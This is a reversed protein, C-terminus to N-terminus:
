FSFILNFKFVYVDDDGIVVYEDAVLKALDIIRGSEWWYKNVIFYGEKVGALKMANEMTEKTPKKNVMELYYQYLANGTPIPYYFLKGKSTDYYKKFGFEQLAAASVQQNALVIFDNKSNQEIYDVAMIDYKSTNFGNSSAFNDHRPYSLYLSACLCISLALILFYRMKFKKLKIKQWFNGIFFLFFPILFLCAIQLVRNTYDDREYNILFGFNIFIKLILYNFFFIFFLILYPLYKKIKKEQYIKKLSFIFIGALIIPLNFYFFYVTNLIIKFQGSNGFSLLKLNQLYIIVGDLIKPNITIATQPSLISNALWLLPFATLGLCAIALFLKGYITNQIKYKTNQIKRWLFLLALFLFAPVGSIPHIFFIALANLILFTNLKKEPNKYKNNERMQAPTREQSVGASCAVGGCYRRWDASSQLAPILDAGNFDGSPSGLAPVSKDEQLYNLSFIILIILFLNALNQPTTLILFSFPMIFLSLIVLWNNDSQFKKNLYYYLVAPLFVAAFFPVLIKELININAGILKALYFILSYEGIYYFPKPAITGTKLIVDLAARHIFPDFGYGLKYIFYAVGFFLFLYISTLILKYNITKLKKKNLLIAILSLTNIFFIAFFYKPAVEWPTRISLLTSNSILIYILTATSILCISILTLFILNAKTRHAVGWGGKDPPNACDGGQCTDALQRIPPNNMKRQLFFILVPFGLTTFVFFLSNLKYFYFFVSGIIAVIFVQPILGLIIKEVIEQCDFFLEGLCYAASMAYILGFIPLIASLTTFYFAFLVLIGLIFTFITYNQYTKM